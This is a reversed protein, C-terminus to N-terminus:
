KRLILPLLARSKHPTFSLLARSRLSPFKKLLTTLNPSPQQQFTSFYRKNYPKMYHKSLSYFPSQHKTATIWNNPYSFCVLDNSELKMSHPQPLSFYSKNIVSFEPIGQFTSKRPDIATKRCFLLTPEFELLSSHHENVLKKADEMMENSRDSYLIKSEQSSVSVFDQAFKSLLPIFLSVLTNELLHVPVLSFYFALPYLPPTSDNEWAASYFDRENAFKIIDSVEPFNVNDYFIRYSDCQGMYYNLTWAVMNFYTTVDTVLPTTDDKTKHIHPIAKTKTTNSMRSILTENYLAEKLLDIIAEAQTVKERLLSYFNGENKLAIIVAITKAIKKRSAEGTGIIIKTDLSSLSLTCYTKGKADSTYDENLTWNSLHSTLIINFDYDPNFLSLKFPNTVTTPPSYTLLTALFRLNFTTMRNKTDRDVLFVDKWEESQKFQIYIKWIADPTVCKKLKSLYDNGGLFALFNFDYIVREPLIPESSVERILDEKLKAVNLHCYSGTLHSVVDCNPHPLLSAMLIVDSDSSYILVSENVPLTNIYEIIKFEGEGLTEPGSFFFKVNTWQNDKNKILMRALLLHLEKKIEHLISSGPTFRVSKSRVRRERRTRQELFKARPGPGDMAVYVTKRAKWAKLMSVTM